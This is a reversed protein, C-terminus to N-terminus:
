KEKPTVKYKSPAADFKKKCDATQFLIRKGQYESHFILRGDKGCVPCKENYPPKNEAFSSASFAFALACIALIAKM